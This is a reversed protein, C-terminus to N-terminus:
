LGMRKKTTEICNANIDCGVFQRGLALSIVAITGGGLFPDCILQGPHTLRNILDAIGSESQGWEHFRKDNDNVKSTAVDGFWELSEGFLLVPKWTTNVKAQWQQVAQGGPTLYAMTWRYSLHECLRQMVEPLYSQGSMVAVLPINAKKCSEALETFCPLFERPYPPDTIVADPKIGSALLEACSCVRLDCANPPLPTTFLDLKRQRQQEERELQKVQQYAKDISIQKDLNNTLMKEILDKQGSERVKLFKSATRRKRGTGESIETTVDTKHLIASLLSEKEKQDTSVQSNHQRAKFIAQQKNQLAQEQLMPILQYRLELEQAPTLNRRDFQNRIIWIKAETRSDIFDLCETEFPINHKQCIAYRNHGDLIVDSGWGESSLDPDWVKISDLCGNDLLNQELGQREEETLAPILAQFEPDIQLSKM